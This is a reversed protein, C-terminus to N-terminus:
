CLTITLLPAAKDEVLMFLLRWEIGTPGRGSWSALPGTLSPRGEADNDENEGLGNVGEVGVM